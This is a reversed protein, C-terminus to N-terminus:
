KTHRKTPQGKDQTGITQSGTIDRRRKPPDTDRTNKPAPQATTDSATTDGPTPAGNAGNAASARGAAPASRASNKGPAAPRSTAPSRSRTDRVYTSSDPARCVTIPAEDTFKLSAFPTHCGISLM